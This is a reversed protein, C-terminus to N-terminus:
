QQSFTFYYDTELDQLLSPHTPHWGLTKRTIESSAPNDTGAILGMFSFHNMAEEAPISVVPIHLGKGIAEAIERFTIEGDDVAQYRSGATAKEVALCFLHAFATHIAADASDAGCKLSDVDELSGEQVIAGAKELLQASSKSRALGIVTHGTDLLERVVASGIFGTSGTVFIRM